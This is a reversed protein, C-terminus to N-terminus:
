VKHTRDESVLRVDADGEVKLGEFPYKTPGAATLDSLSDQQPRQLNQGPRQSGACGHAGRIEADQMPLATSPPHTSM